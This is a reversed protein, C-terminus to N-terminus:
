QTSNALFNALEKWFFDDITEITDEWVEIHQIGVADAVRFYEQISKQNPLNQPWIGFGYKNTDNGVYTIHNLILNRLVDPPYSNYTSMDIVRDVAPAIVSADWNGAFDDFGTKNIGAKHLSDTFQAVFKALTSTDVGYNNEWDINYGTFGFDVAKQTANKIFDAQLTPDNMLRGLGTGDYGPPLTITPVLGFGNAQLVKNSGDWHPCIASANNNCPQQHPDSPDCSCDFQGNVNIMYALVSVHSISAKNKIIIPIPDEGDSRGETIIV